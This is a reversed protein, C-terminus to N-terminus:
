RRPAMFFALGTIVGLVLLLVMLALLPDATFIIMCAFGGLAAVVITLITSNIIAVKEGVFRFVQDVEEGKGAEASVWAQATHWAMNGTTSAVANLADVHADWKAKFDLVAQAGADFAFDCYFNLSAAVVEDNVIWLQEQMPLNSVAYYIVEPYFNRSPFRKNDWRLKNRLDDIWCRKRLIRLEAPATDQPVGPRDPSWTPSMDTGPFGGGDECMAVLARQAWPNSMRPGPPILAPMQFTPDFSWRDANPGLLPITRPARIGWLVTVDIQKNAAVTPVSQLQRVEDLRRTSPSFNGLPTYDQFSCHPVEWNCVVQATCVETANAEPSLVVTASGLRYFRSAVVSGESWSEMIEADLHMSIPSLTVIWHPTDPRSLSRYDRIPAATAKPKVPAAAVPSAQYASQSVQPRLAHPQVAKNADYGGRRQERNAKGTTLNTQTGQTDSEFHVEFDYRGLTYKVPADTEGYYPENGPFWPSWGKELEIVWQYEGEYGKTCKASTALFYCTPLNAKPQAMPEEVNEDSAAMPYTKSNGVGRDRAAMSSSYRAGALAQAMARLATDATPGTPRNIAAVRANLSISACDSLGPPPGGQAIAPLLSISSETFGQGAGSSSQVGTSWCEDANPLPVVDQDCWYLSCASFMSSAWPANAECVTEKSTPSSISIDVRPIPSFEAELVPYVVQNHGDPFVQPVGSALSIDLSIGVGMLIVFLAAVVLIVGPCFATKRALARLYSRALRACRGKKSKKKKPPPSGEPAPLAPLVGAYSQATSAAADEPEVVTNRAQIVLMPPLYLSILVFCWLCCLGMFFGFERLPQLVSALNALFSAATTLSTALCNVGASVLTIPIRQEMPRKAEYVFVTDSGIGVILFLALFSTVTLKEAPTLVFAIPLSLLIMFLCCFSMWIAQLQFWLCLLVFAVSGVAFSLDSQLTDVLELSTIFDGAYRVFSGQGKLFPYLEQAVFTEWDRKAQEVAAQIAGQSSGTVDFAFFFRSRLAEPLEGAAEHGTGNREPPVYSNPFFRRFDLIPHGGQAIYALFAPPPIPEHSNGDLQMIFRAAANDTSTPPVQTAWAYAMLSEGPDCYGRLISATSDCLRKYGELNRMSVEVNAIQQLVKKNMINAKADYILTLGKTYILLNFLRRSSANREAVLEMVEVEEDGVQLLEGPRLEGTEPLASLRRRANPGEREGLALIYAERRLMSDGDARIFTSFDFEITPIRFLPAVIAIVLVTSILIIMWPRKEVQRSYLEVARYLGSRRVWVGPSNEHFLRREEADYMEGLTWEMDNVMEAVQNMQEDLEAVNPLRERSGVDSNQRHQLRRITKQTRDLRAQVEDLDESFILPDLTGGWSESTEPEVFLGAGVTQLLRTQEMTKITQKLTERLTSYILGMCGTVGAPILFTNHSIERYSIAGVICGLLFFLYLPVLVLLKRKDVHLEAEDLLQTGSGDRLFLRRVLLIAARGATSGIDTICGTVHTTRVVAGFHMTCMANQLGSAMAAWFPAFEHNPDFYAILLLACEAILATGYLGKGGIHVQTKPIILGCLFSGFCFFLVCLGLQKAKAADIKENSEHGIYMGVKATNGTVHTTTVNFCMISAVDVMGAMMALINGFILMYWQPRKFSAKTSEAKAKHMAYSTSQRPIESSHVFADDSDTGESASESESGTPPGQLGTPGPPPVLTRGATAPASRTGPWSTPLYVSAEGRLARGGDRPEGAQKSSRGVEPGVTSGEIPAFLEDGSDGEPLAPAERM